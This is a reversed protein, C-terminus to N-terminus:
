SKDDQAHLLSCIRAMIQTTPLTGLCGSLVESSWAARAAWLLVANFFESKRGSEKKLCKAVVACKQQGPLKRVDHHSLTAISHM